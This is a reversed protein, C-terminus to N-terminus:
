KEATHWGKSRAAIEAPRDLPGASMENQVTNLIVPSLSTTAIRYETRDGQGMEPQVLLRIEWENSHRCALGSGAAGSTITFTRCYDGAKALFSLGIQVASSPASEGSLQDSLGRSLLGSAVLSGGVDQIIDSQSRHWAFYGAGVAVLLSAAMSAVYRWRMENPRARASKQAVSARAGALDMVKAESTRDSQRLAALLRQPVPEALEAAYASQIRARLLRYQAIRTDVEPDDRMAAEVTARMSPDLEGDVYAMLTENPISM